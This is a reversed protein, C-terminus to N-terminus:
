WQGMAKIEGAQDRWIEKALSGVGPSGIDFVFEAMRLAGTHHRVMADIWRLDYTRGAPGVNHTHIPASPDIPAVPVAGGGPAGAPTLLPQHHHQHPDVQAQAGQTLLAVFVLTSLAARM